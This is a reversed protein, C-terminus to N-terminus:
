EDVRQSERREWRLRPECARIMTSPPALVFSLTEGVIEDDAGRGWRRTLDRQQLPLPLIKSRERLTLLADKM